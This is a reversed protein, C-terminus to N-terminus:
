FKFGVGAQIYSNNNNNGTGRVIPKIGHNYRGEIFFRNSIDITVGGTLAVDIGQVKDDETGVIYNSDSSKVEYKESVKFGITPGGYFALWNCVYGKALIPVNIYDIKAETTITNNPTIDYKYSDGQQSYLAEVQIAFRKEPTLSFEGFVGGYFGSRADHDNNWVNKKSSTTLSAHSYGAKVGFRSVRENNTQAHLSNTCLALAFAGTTIFNFLKM